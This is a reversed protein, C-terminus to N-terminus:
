GRKRGKTRSKPAVERVEVRAVRGGYLASPRCLYLYGGGFGDETVVCWGRWPKMRTATKRTSM